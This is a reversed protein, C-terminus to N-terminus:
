RERDNLSEYERHLEIMNVFNEVFQLIDEWHYARRVNRKPQYYRNWPQNVLIQFTYGNNNDIVEALKPNDDIYIDYALITKEVQSDTPKLQIFEKYEIGERIGLEELRQKILSGKAISSTVIDIKYERLLFLYHQTLLFCPEVHLMEDCTKKLLKFFDSKSIGFNEGWWRTMDDISYNTSYKENYKEIWKKPTNLLVGDVDLAIRIKSPM